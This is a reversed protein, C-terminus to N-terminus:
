RGEAETMIGRHHHCLRDGFFQAEAGFRRPQDGSLIKDSTNNTATSMKNM